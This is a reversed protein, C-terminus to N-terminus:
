RNTMVMWGDQWGDKWAGMLGSLSFSRPTEFCSELKEHRQQCVESSVCLSLDM